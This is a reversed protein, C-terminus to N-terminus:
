LRCMRHGWPMDEPASISKAGNAVASKYFEDVNDCYLCLTIPSEVGSTRPSKLSSGFAGQKGAMILQGNYDMEAHMGKGDDDSKVESLTFQFAKQYFDAAKDVDIVTLYPSVAANECQQSM